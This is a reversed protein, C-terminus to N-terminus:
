RTEAARCGPIGAAPGPRSPYGEGERGVGCLVAPYGLFFRGPKLFAQIPDLPGHPDCHEDRDRKVLMEDGLGVHQPTHRPRPPLLRLVVNTQSLLRGMAGTTTVVFRAKPLPGDTNLSALM